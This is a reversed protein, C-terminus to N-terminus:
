ARPVTTVPTIAENPVIVKASPLVIASDMRPERACIFSTSARAAPALHAGDDVEERHGLRLVHETAEGAALKRERATRCM